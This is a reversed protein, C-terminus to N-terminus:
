PFSERRPIKVNRIAIGGSDGTLQRHYTEHGFSAREYLLTSMAVNWRDNAKGITPGILDLGLSNAMPPSDVGGDRESIRNGVLDYHDPEVNEISL